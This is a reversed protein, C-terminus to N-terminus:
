KIVVKDETLPREKLRGVRYVKEGAATLQAMVRDVNAAKVALVMGLGMNFTEWLDDPTLKGLEQLYTFVPLIPWTGRSVVAQLRDAFMRPLNEILGGGTIHSIGEALGAKVLPLVSQVYIRTPALIAEGVTQGNLIAPRDKLDVKHDTFLIQRVLSFGNSHIGSSALGLLINGAQPRSDDLLQDKEVIGTAAGALDYEDHGYMDPMEATEGGVLAAGAQRCGVAVGHVVTALRAPDNHGAAIYDLFYLPEAGQALLDNVCMAVVDIGVTDHKAMKQAVLLKTGVGDTGSVLIPHRYHLEGLDFMGGFSGIGAIMGPRSTSKVDDKIKEVLQYGANVDVGAEQYRNM